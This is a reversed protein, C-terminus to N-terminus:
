YDFDFESGWFVSGRDDLPSVKLYKRFRSPDTRWPVTYKGVVVFTRADHDICRGDDLYTEGNDGEVSADGVFVRYDDLSKCIVADEDSKLKLRQGVAIEEFYVERAFAASAGIGLTMGIMAAVIRKM